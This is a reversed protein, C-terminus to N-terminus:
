FVFFVDEDDNVRVFCSMRSERLYKERFNSAPVPRTNGWIASPGVLIRVERDSNGM